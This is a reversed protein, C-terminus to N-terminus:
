KRPVVELEQLLTPWVLDSFWNVRKDVM